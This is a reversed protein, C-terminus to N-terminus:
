PVDFLFRPNQGNKLIVSMIAGIMEVMVGDTVRVAHHVEDILCSVIDLSTRDTM